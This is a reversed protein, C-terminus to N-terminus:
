KYNNKDPINTIVLDLITNERTPFQNLQELIYDDMIRIFSRENTGTSHENSNWCARPLNFDGALVIKSQCSCVDDLFNEFNEFGVLINTDLSSTLEVLVIEM